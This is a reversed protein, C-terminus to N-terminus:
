DAAARAAGELFRRIEAAPQPQTFLFGQLRDCNLRMLERRQAETEIGEAVVTLGLSHGLEIIATVIPNAEALTVKQVFSRDMKLSDLPLTHLYSLSSYGTGFDDIAIHVGLEKLLRLQQASPENNEMLVSETLEVQLLGPEVGFEELVRRMDDALNGRLVQAASVNVAVPAPKLGERRWEVIQRCAERMVWLGVDHILGSEEAVPIFRSPPLLGLEPHHLRVLAEMSEVAGTRSFLPHYHLVLGGKDLARRLAREIHMAEQVGHTESRNYGRYCNRGARKAQYLGYDARRMVDDLEEGDEPYVAGGVSITALLELGKVDLPERMEELLSRALRACGEATEIDEAIVIFEDGGVRALTDSARLRARLREVAAKLFEDGVQHGFTDNVQKFRDFDIALLALLSGSRKARLVAQGYRDALLARNPLGTLSDHQAQRVLEENLRVRDSIDQAVILRQSGGGDTMDHATLEAWFVSGDKRRHRVPGFPQNLKPSRMLVLTPTADEAPVIDSVQMSLFEERSYGYGRSAADNVSLFRLTEADYTWMPLPNDEFLLRYRRESERSTTEAKVQRHIDNSVGVWRLIQGDPKLQPLARALYWRYCGDHQLVRYQAEFPKGSKVAAQWRTLMGPLDEPHIVSTWLRGLGEEMARGTMEGFRNSLYDVEGEATTTWLISPLAEALTRFREESALLEERAMQQETVDAVLLVFGQVRGAEDVDPSYSLRLDHRRGGYFHTADFAVIKGALAQEVYPALQEVYDAGIREVLYERWHRGVVSEAAVRYWEEYARNVWRYRGDHGVYAILAPARDVITQLQKTKMALTSVPAETLTLQVVSDGDLRVARATACLNLEGHSGGLRLTRRATTTTRLLDSLEDAGQALDSLESGRLEGGDSRQLLSACAANAYLIRGARVLCVAVPLDELVAEAARWERTGGEVPNSAEHYECSGPNM